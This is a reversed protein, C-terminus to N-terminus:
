NVNTAPTDTFNIDEIEFGFPDNSTSTGAFSVQGWGFSGISGFLANNAAIANPDIGPTQSTSSSSPPNYGFGTGMSAFLMSFLAIKFFNNM